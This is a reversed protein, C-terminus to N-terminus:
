GTRILFALVAAAAPAAEVEAAVVEAMEAQMEAMQWGEASSASGRTQGMQKSIVPSAVGTFCRSGGTPSAEEWRM